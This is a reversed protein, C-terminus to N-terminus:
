TPIGDSHKCSQHTWHRTGCKECDVLTNEEPKGFAGAYNAGFKKLDTHQPRYHIDHSTLARTQNQYDLSM